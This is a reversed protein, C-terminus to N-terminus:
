LPPGIGNRVKGRPTGLAPPALPRLHWAPLVPLPYGHGGPGARTMPAWRRGLWRERCWAAWLFNGCTGFVM